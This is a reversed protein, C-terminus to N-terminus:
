FSACERVQIQSQLFSQRFHTGNAVPVLFYHVHTPLPELKLGRLGDLFDVKAQNLQTLCSEYYPRDNLAAVGAAQALANVLEDKDGVERYLTPKSVGAEVAIAALSVKPGNKAILREAADLLKTAKAKPSEHEQQNPNDFM